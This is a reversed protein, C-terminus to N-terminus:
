KKTKLNALLEQFTKDKLFGKFQSQYTRIISVGILDVDYILWTDIANKVKYFKYNIDHKADNGVLQTKLILRNRKPEEIGTIKVLEDTYLDLKDVYSNKMIQTFIKIFEIREEKSIKKWTRGLSLKSMLTYDFASNMLSIIENAKENKSLKSDKVIILVKDIKNGMEIKINAKTMAFMSTTLFLFTFAFILKKLM